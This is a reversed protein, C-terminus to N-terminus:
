AMGSTFQGMDFYDRWEIIKGNLVKFIGAVPLKTTADGIVLTDIRENMVTNGSAVQHLIEFDISEASFFGEIFGRIEDIGNAPAMPINHYIANEDFFNIIEEIDGQAWKDCFSRVIEDPTNTMFTSYHVFAHSICQLYLFNTRLYNLVRYLTNRSHAIFAM